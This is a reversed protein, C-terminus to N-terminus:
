RVLQDRTMAGAWHLARLMAHVRDIDIRDRHTSLVVNGQREEIIQDNL